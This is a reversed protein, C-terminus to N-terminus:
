FLFKDHPRNDNASNTCNLYKSKNQKKLNLAKETHVGQYSYALNGPVHEKRM